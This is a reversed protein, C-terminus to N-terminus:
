WDGWFDLVVVKGRYDSLKFEVGDLDRGVIDPATMGPRLNELKFVSRASAARISETPANVALAKADRLTAAFTADDVTSYKLHRVAQRSAEYRTKEDAADIEIAGALADIAAVAATYVERDRVANQLLFGLFPLAADTGAHREAATLFDHFLPSREPPLPPLVTDTAVAAPHAKAYTAVLRDYEARADDQAPLVVPVVALVALALKRNM